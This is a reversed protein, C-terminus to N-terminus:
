TLSHPLVVEVRFIFFIAGVLILIALYNLFTGGKFILGLLHSFFIIM